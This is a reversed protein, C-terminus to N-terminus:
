ARAENVVTLKQNLGPLRLEMRHRPRWKGLIADGRGDAADSGHRHGSGARRRHRQGAPRLASLRPRGAREAGSFGAGSDAVRVVAAAEEARVDVLVAGGEGTYALANVILHTLARRVAVADARVLAPEAFGM